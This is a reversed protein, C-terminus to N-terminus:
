ILLRVPQLLSTNIARAKQLAKANIIIYTLTNLNTVSRRNRVKPRKIGLAESQSNIRETATRQTYVAKYLPSTRDLMARMLGGKEINIEKVCGKEKTFQEHECSQGTAHPFLLPCQYRQVRYGKGHQFQKTPHMRLGRSCLPVGDPARPVEPHGHLNLPIAAIGNHFACTQYVHWADFAADAAVFTPFQEMVAVMQRFLPHYYTVDGENFTQTFEALVVDGYDPTTATIIGSGYGWLYEKQENKDKPKNKTDTSPTSADPPATAKKRKKPLASDAPIPTTSGQTATDAPKQASATETEQEKQNTSRKVGLRCDPDGTPQRDPNFREAVYDRLNNQKVWAYIHTVDVAVTEGLGPIEAQLDVVTHHFLDQLCHHDLHQQQFRLWREKPVTAEVDFGYPARPDLKPEFGLELVLLPHRVLFTRLKPISDKGECIKVLLAKIYATKPHGHEGRKRSVPSAPLFPDWNLLAFFARYHQVVPDLERMLSLTPQDFVVSTAIM